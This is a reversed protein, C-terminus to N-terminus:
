FLLKKVKEGSMVNLTNYVIDRNMDLFYSTKKVDEM